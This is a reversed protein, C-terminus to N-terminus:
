PKLNSVVAKGTYHIVKDVSRPVEMGTGQKNSVLVVNFTKDQRM